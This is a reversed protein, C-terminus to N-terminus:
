GRYKDHTRCWCIWYVPKRKFAPSFHPPGLSTPTSMWAYTAWAPGDHLILGYYGLELHHLFNKLRDQENLFFRTVSEPNALTTSIGPLSSLARAPESKPYQYALWVQYGLEFSYPQGVTVSMMFLQGGM